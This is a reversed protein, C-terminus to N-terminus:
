QSSWYSNAPLDVKKVITWDPNWREIAIPIGERSAHISVIVEVFSHMKLAILLKGEASEVEYIGSQKPCESM